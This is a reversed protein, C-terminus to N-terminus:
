TWNLVKLINQNIPLTKCLAVSCYFSIRMQKIRRPLLFCIFCMELLTDGKTNHQLLFTSLRQMEGGTVTNLKFVLQRRSTASTKKQHLGLHLCLKAHQCSFASVRVNGEQGAVSLGSGTKLRAKGALVVTIVRHLSVTPVKGLSPAFCDKFKSDM